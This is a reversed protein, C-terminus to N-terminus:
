CPETWCRHSSASRSPPDIEKRLEPPVSTYAELVNLSKSVGRAENDLVGFATLSLMIALFIGVIGAVLFITAIDM